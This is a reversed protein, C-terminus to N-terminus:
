VPLFCVLNCGLRRGICDELLLVEQYFDVKEACHRWAISDTKKLNLLTKERRECLFQTGSCLKGYSAAERLSRSFRQPHVATLLCMTILGQAKNQNGRSSCIIVASCLHIFTKGSTSDVEHDRSPFEYKCLVRTFGKKRAESRPRPHIAPSHGHPKAQAFVRTLSFELAQSPCGIALWLVINPTRKKKWRTSPFYEFGSVFRRKNSNYNDPNQLALRRTEVGWVSSWQCM